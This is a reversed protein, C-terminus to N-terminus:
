RNSGRQSEREREREIGKECKTFHSDRKRLSFFISSSSRKLVNSHKLPLNSASLTAELVALSSASSMLLLTQGKECRKMQLQLSHFANDRLWENQERERERERKELIWQLACNISSSLLNFVSILALFLASFLSLNKIFFSSEKFIGNAESPDSCDLEDSLLSIEQWDDMVEEAVLFGSSFSDLDWIGFEGLHSISSFSSFGSEGVTECSEVSSWDFGLELSISFSSCLYKIWVQM